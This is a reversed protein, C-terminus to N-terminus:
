RSPGILNGCAVISGLNDKSEHVNVMYEGSRPMPVNVIATGTAKGDETVDLPSYASADGVIGQDHGCSGRHLHWPLTAEPSAHDLSVEIRTQTSDQNGMVIANGSVEPSPSGPQATLTVSWRAGMFGVPQVNPDYQGSGGGGCAATMVVVLVGGAAHRM